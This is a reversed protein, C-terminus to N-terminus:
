NALRHPCKEETDRWLVTLAIVAVYASLSVVAGSTLGAPRYVFRVRHEGEGLRVGRLIGETRVLEAMESDIFVSWDPDFVESLVLLGPGGADVEIRNPTWEVIQGERLPEAVNSLLDVDRFADSTTESDGDKWEWGGPSVVFARPLARENEYLLVDGWEGRPELGECEIPYATAVYRVNLLGLLDLDPVVDRHALLLMDEGESVEPFAPITVSYGDRDVGTAWRMFEAYEALQFPDVGDASEIGYIAGTQHPISYSPSYTRFQGPQSALWTAAERGEALVESSPRLEYLTFGVLWLDGLVLVLVLGSFLGRSLRGWRRLAVLAGCLPWIVAAAAVNLPLHFVYAAVGGALAATGLGAASLSIRKGHGVGQELETMGQAALIATALVVLFWARAPGRLWHLPPLLRYMVRYLPANTGLSYVGALVAVGLWFWREKSRWCRAGIVALIAVAAGVYTMWEPFGGHDAVILGLLYRLPLSPIGSEDLTLGGRNLRGSVAALPLMQVAVLGAAIALGGMGALVVRHWSAADGHIRQWGLLCWYAAAAMGGYFGLRVDALILMGAAFGTVAVDAGRGRRALRRVAVMLWPMWAWAFYLGVHGAALHAISKPSFMLALGAVLAGSKSAGMSRALSYGGGGAWAAHLVFLANFGVTLPLVLLLLNPPYWLGSLPNAAFPEGSLILSRWLPVQGWTALSRRVFLANPWHTIVLDSYFGNPRCIFGDPMILFPWFFLVSLALLLGSRRLKVGFGKAVAV